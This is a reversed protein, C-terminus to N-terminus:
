VADVPNNPPTMRRTCYFAFPSSFGHENADRLCVGLESFFTTSRVPAVGPRVYEWGWQNQHDFCFIWEGPDPAFGLELMVDRLQQRWHLEPPMVECPHLNLSSARPAKLHQLHALVAPKLRVMAELARSYTVQTAHAILRTLGAFRVAHYLRAWFGAAGSRGNKRAVALLRSSVLKM